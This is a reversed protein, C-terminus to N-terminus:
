GSKAWILESPADSGAESFVKRWFINMLEGTPQDSEVTQRIFVEDDYMPGPLSDWYKSDIALHLGTAGSIGIEIIYKDGYGLNKAAKRIGEISRLYQRQLAGTPIFRKPEGEDDEPKTLRNSHYADVGWLERNKLLQTFGLFDGDHTLCHSIAGWRNRTHNYGGGSLLPPLHATADYAEQSTLTPLQKEPICRVYILSSVPCYADRKVYQRDGPVIVENPSWFTGRRVTYTTEIHGTEVLGRPKALYLKLISALEGALKKQEASITSADANPELHYQVPHRRTRLDFPLDTALGYQTNMVKLVAEDGLKGYTYGLEIAVNSNIHKKGVRGTGVLSVDAVVVRSAAIKELIVRVIEPSGLVGQTDQDVEIEDREAESIDLEDSLKRIAQILASHIFDKNTKRPADM